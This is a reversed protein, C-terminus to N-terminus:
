PQVRRIRLVFPSRVIREGARHPLVGRLVRMVASTRGSGKADIFAIRGNQVCAVRIGGLGADEQIRLMNRRPFVPEASRVRRVDAIILDLYVGFPAGNVADRSLIPRRM